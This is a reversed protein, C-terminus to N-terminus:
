KKIKYAPIAKKKSEVKLVTRTDALIYRKAAANWGFDMNLIRILKQFQVFTKIKINDNNSTEVEKGTLRKLQSKISVYNEKKLVPNKPDVLAGILKKQSKTSLKKFMGEINDAFWFKYNKSLAKFSEYARQALIEKFGFFKEYIGLNKVFVKEEFCLIDFNRQFYITDASITTFTDDYRSLNFYKTKQVAQFPNQKTFYKIENRGETSLVVLVGFIKSYGGVENNYYKKNDVEEDTNFLNRATINKALDDEWLVFNDSVNADYINAIKFNSTDRVYRELEMLYNTIVETSLKEDPKICYKKFENKNKFVFYIDVSFKNTLYEQPIHKNLGPKEM